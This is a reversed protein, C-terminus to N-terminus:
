LRAFAKEHRKLLEDIDKQKEAVRKRMANSKALLTLDAKKEAMQAYEDSSQFSIM